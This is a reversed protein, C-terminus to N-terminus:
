SQIHNEFVDYGVPDSVTGTPEEDFECNSFAKAILLDRINSTEKTIIERLSFDIIDREFKQLYTEFDVQGTEEKKATLTVCYFDENYKRLDIHFNNGYWYLCKLIVDKSYISYDLYIVISNDSIHNQLATM